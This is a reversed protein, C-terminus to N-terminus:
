TRLVILTSRSEDPESRHDETGNQSDFNAHDCPQNIFLADNHACSLTPAEIIAILRDGPKQLEGPQRITTAGVLCAVDDSSSMWALSEFSYIKYRLRDLLCERLPLPIVSRALRQRKESAAM